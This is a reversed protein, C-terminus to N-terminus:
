FTGPSNNKYSGLHFFILSPAFTVSGCAYQMLRGHSVMSHVHMTKVHTSKRSQTENQRHHIAFDLLTDADLKGHLEIFGSGFGKFHKPSREKLWVATKSHCECKLALRTDTSSSSCEPCGLVPLIVFFTSFIRSSM